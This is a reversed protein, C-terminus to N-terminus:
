APVPRIWPLRRGLLPIGVLVILLGTVIQQYGSEIGALELGVALASLAIVAMVVAIISGKGGDLAVGALFAAAAAFLLNADGAVPSASSVTIALLIGARGAILSCILFVSLRRRAVPVGVSAAARADGGVAVIERGPRTSTIGLHVVIMVVFLILSPITIPGVLEDSMMLAADIGSGSVPRGGSVILALGRALLLTGLTAVFSVVRVYQVLWANVIGIAMAVVAGLVIALLFGVEPVLVSFAVGALAMVSGISLDIEGALLCVALGIALLGNTASRSLINAFTRQELYGDVLVGCALVIIVLLLAM